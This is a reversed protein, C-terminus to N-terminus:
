KEKQSDKKPKHLITIFSGTGTGKKYGEKILIKEARDIWTDQNSINTNKEM